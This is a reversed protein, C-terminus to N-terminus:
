DTDKEPKRAGVLREMNRIIEREMNRIIESVVILIKKISYVSQKSFKNNQSTGYSYNPVEISLEMSLMKTMDLLLSVENGKRIICNKASCYFTCRIRSSVSQEFSTIPIVPMEKLIVVANKALEEDGKNQEATEKEADNISKKKMLNLTKFIVAIIMMKMRITLMTMMIMRRQKNMLILNLTKQSIVKMESGWEFTIHAKAFSISKVEDPVRPKDCTGENLSPFVSTSEDFVRRSKKEMRHDIQFAFDKWILKTYDVNERYFMGWLIDIRSKRIRDNSATKVSLYKNII